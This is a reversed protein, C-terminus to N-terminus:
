KGFRAHKSVRGQTYDVTADYAYGREKSANLRPLVASLSVNADIGQGQLWLSSSNGANMGVGVTVGSGNAYTVSFTNAQGAFVTGTETGTGNWDTYAITVNLNGSANFAMHAVNGRVGAVTFSINYSTANTGGSRTFLMGRSTHNNTYVYDEDIFVRMTGGTINTFNASISSVTINAVEGSLFAGYTAIDASHNYTHLTDNISVVISSNSEAIGIQPGVISNFEYAADDLLFAAYTLPLPEILARETSLYASRLSMALAILIMILSVSLITIVYGRM